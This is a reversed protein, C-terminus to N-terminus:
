EMVKTAEALDIGVIRRIPPIESLLMVVVLCGSSSGRGLVAPHERHDHVGGLVAPRLAPRGDAPRAVRGAPGRGPRAAPERHHGDLRHRGTSEGITRMTAIERTRELVNANLTNYVVVLAMALGFVLLLGQYFDMFEMMELFRALMEAKVVVSVAGQIDDLREKVDPAAM